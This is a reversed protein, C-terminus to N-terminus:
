QRRLGFTAALPSPCAKDVERLGCERLVAGLGRVPEDGRVEVTHQGAVDEAEHDHGRRLVALRFEDGHAEGCEPEALAGVIRDDDRGVRGAEGVALATLGPV